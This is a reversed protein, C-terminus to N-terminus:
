AIRVKGEKNLVEHTVTLSYDSIEQPESRQLITTEILVM